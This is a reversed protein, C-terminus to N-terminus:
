NTKTFNGYGDNEYILTTYESSIVSNELGGDYSGPMVVILDLDGDDDIDEFDVMHPESSYNLTKKLVAGGGSNSLHFTIYYPRESNKEPSYSGEVFDVRRDSNLDLSITYNAPKSPACSYCFLTLSALGCFLNQKAFLNNIM